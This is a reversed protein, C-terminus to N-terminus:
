SALPIVITSRWVLVGVEVERGVVRERHAIERSRSRAGTCSTRCTARRDRDDVVVENISM